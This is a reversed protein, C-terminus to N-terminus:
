DIEALDLRALRERVRKEREEDCDQHSICKERQSENEEDHEIHLSRALDGGRKNRTEEEYMNIM